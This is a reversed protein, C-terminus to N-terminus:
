FTEGQNQIRDGERFFPNLTSLARLAGFLILLILNVLINLWPNFELRLGLSMNMNLLVM